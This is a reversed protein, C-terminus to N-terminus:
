GMHLRVSAGPRKQRRDRNRVATTRFREMERDATTNVRGSIPRYKPKMENTEGTVLRSVADM